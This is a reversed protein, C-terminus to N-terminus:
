YIRKQKKDDAIEYSQIGTIKSAFKMIVQLMTITVITIGDSIKKEEPPRLGIHARRSAVFNLGYTSNCNFGYMANRLSITM